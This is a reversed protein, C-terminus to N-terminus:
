NIMKVLKCTNCIKQASAEGCQECISVTGKRYRNMLIPKMELFSKVIGYKTAPNKKEFDNLMNKVNRRYSDSSMPCVEPFVLFKMIKSYLLVEEETCFYLPKIRPIFKKDKNIGTMPGLRSLLSVNNKFINMLVSQAEDDLNHGTVVKTAKLEKAKKNLIYRKLIGCVTCSKLKVSKKKLNSMIKQLPLGFEAKFSTIHLKIDYKDCFKKLNDSNKRSYEGITQDIHFAEISVDRNKIIRKLMYLVVASDKGGSCAVIVKEKKGILKEVRLNKRVKKEFYTLFHTKCLKEKGTLTFVPKDICCQKM